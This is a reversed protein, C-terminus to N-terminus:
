RRIAFTKCPRTVLPDLNLSGEIVGQRFYSHIINPYDTIIAGHSFCRGFQFLVFDGTQPADTEDAYRLVTELYREESRHLHWDVPYPEVTDIPPIIGVASYVALPFMACDVGIGKLRGAHHFPTGIWSMAEAVVAKRESETLTAM